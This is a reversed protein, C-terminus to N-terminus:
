GACAALESDVVLTVLVFHLDSNQAHARSLLSPPFYVVSYNWTRQSKRNDHFHQLRAATTSLLLFFVELAFYKM